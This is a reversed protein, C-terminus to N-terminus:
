QHPSDIEQARLLGERVPHPFRSFCPAQGARLAGPLSSTM